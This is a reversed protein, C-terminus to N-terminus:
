PIIQDFHFKEVEVDLKRSKRGLHPVKGNWRCKKTKTKFHSINRDFFRHRFNWKLHSIERGCVRNDPHGECHSMSWGLVEIRCYRCCFLIKCCLIRNRTYKGLHSNNLQIYWKGFKGALYLIGLLRGIKPIKGSHVLELCFWYKPIHVSSISARLCIKLFKVSFSFNKSIIRNESSKGLNLSKRSFLEDEPNKGSIIFKCPFFYKKSIQAKIQFKRCFM